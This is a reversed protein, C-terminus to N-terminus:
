SERLNKFIERPPEVLVRNLVKKPLITRSYDVTDFDKRFKSKDFNVQVTQFYDGEDM